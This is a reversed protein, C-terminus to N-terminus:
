RDMWALKSSIASIRRWGFARTTVRFECPSSMRTRRLGYGQGDGWSMRLGYGLWPGV